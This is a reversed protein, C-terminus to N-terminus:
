LLKLALYPVLNFVIILLKYRALYQYFQIPILAPELGFFRAHMDVIWDRLGLVAVVALLYLALNVVLMWGFLATFQELSLM